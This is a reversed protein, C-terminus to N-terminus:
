SRTRSVLFEVASLTWDFRKIESLLLENRACWVLVNLSNLFLRLLQHRIVALEHSPFRLWFIRHLVVVVCRREVVLLVGVLPEWPPLFAAFDVNLIILFHLLMQHFVVFCIHIQQKVIEIMERFSSSFFGSSSRFGGSVDQLRCWLSCVPQRRSILFRSPPTSNVCSWFGRVFFDDLIYVLLVESTSCSLFITIIRRKLCFLFSSSIAVSKVRSSGASPPWASLPTAVRTM